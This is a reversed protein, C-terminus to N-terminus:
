VGNRDNFQSATRVVSGRGAKVGFACYQAGLPLWSIAREGRQVFPRRLPFFGFYRRGLEGAGAGRLLDSTQARSLLKSDADLACRSVILRTVPNYPNHEMVIAVGGPRLVRMMEAVLAPRESEPVLLLVCIVFLADFRADDFPLRAGDYATFQTKRARTRAIELSKESVDVGTLEAVEHQVQQDVLGIGCGLDLVRLRKTDGLKRAMIELVMRAKEAALGEVSVGAVREIVSEYNHAYRDFDVRIKGKGEPAAPRQRAGTRTHPSRPPAPWGDAGGDRALSSSRM